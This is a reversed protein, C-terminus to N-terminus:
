PQRGRKLLEGLEAFPKQTVEQPAGEARAAVPQEPREQAACDAVADGQLEAAAEHRAVLPLGLLLEEEVLERLVVRGGEAFVSDLGTPLRDAADLDEVLAVRTDSEIPVIVPRMCRQCTLPVRAEVVLHAVPVGQLREFEVQGVVEGANGDLQERLRPFQAPAVRFELRERRDALREVDVPRSWDPPM